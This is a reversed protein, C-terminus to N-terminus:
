KIIKSVFGTANWKGTTREDFEKMISQYRRSLENIALVDGNVKEVAAATNQNYVAPNVSIYKLRLTLLLDNLHDNYAILRGVMAINASVAQVGLKQAEYSGVEDIKLAMQQLEVLLELSKERVSKLKELESDVLNLAEHYRGKEDMERIKKLSAFSEESFGNIFSAILAGRERASQFEKPVSTTRTAIIAVAFLLSVLGFWIAGWKRSM